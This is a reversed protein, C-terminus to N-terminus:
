WGPLQNGLESPLQPLGGDIVDHPIELKATSWSGSRGVDRPINAVIWDKSVSGLGDLELEADLRVAVMVWADDRMSIEFEYRSLYATFRNTRSTSKVELHLEPGGHVALAVDYGFGDSRVAVHDVAVGPLGKILAVLAAEGAAGVRERAATDVKGWTSVLQRYVSEQDLGLSDGVAVIDIPLEDPSQVLQDADPVWAPTTNEFIAALVREAPSLPSGGDALIGVDRLWTLATAYQTPSLDSYKAHNTLLTQARPVSGGSSLVELWRAAAVLIPRRPLM